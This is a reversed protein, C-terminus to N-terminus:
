IYLIINLMYGRLQINNQINLGDMFYKDIDKCNCLKNFYEVAINKSYKIKYYSYNINLNELKKKEIKIPENSFAM